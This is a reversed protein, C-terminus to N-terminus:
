VIVFRLIVAVNVQENYIELYGAKMTFLRGDSVRNLKDIESSLYMLARPILGCTEPDDLIGKTIIKKTSFM